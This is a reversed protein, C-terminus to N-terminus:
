AVEDAEIADIIADSIGYRRLPARLDEPVRAVVHIARGERSPDPLTLALAHLALRLLGGRERLVRNEKNDGYTTDGLIPCHLHRLHRRLQHYRGTAPSALVLAYRPAGTRVDDAVALTRYRTIAEVREASAEARPVRHDITGERPKPAGRVWALYRKEIRGEAFARGLSSAAEDDLAFALAGSTARDLRHVPWLWVGLERHLRTLVNERSADLGRHVSIGSPKDVVVVRADRYLVRLTGRGRESEVDGELM